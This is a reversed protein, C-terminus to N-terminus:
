AAAIAARPKIVPFDNQTQAVNNLFNTFVTLAVNGVVEVIDADSLGASRATTIDEDSVHGQTELIRGALYLAARATPDSSEGTHAGDLEAQGLGAKRGLLTHASLCYECGNHESTRIALRERVQANLHGAGLAGFLGLLGELAAPSQATIKFLNPVAGFNQKVADLLTKTKGQATNPDVPQLRNM